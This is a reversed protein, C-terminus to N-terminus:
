VRRKYHHSDMDKYAVFNPHEKEIRRLNSLSHSFERKVIQETQKEPSDGGAVEFPEFYGNGKSTIKQKKMKAM